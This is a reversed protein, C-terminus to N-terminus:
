QKDETPARSRGLCVSRTARAAARAVFVLANVRGEHERKPRADFGSADVQGIRRASNSVMSLGRCAVRVHHESAQADTLVVLCTCFVRAAGQWAM